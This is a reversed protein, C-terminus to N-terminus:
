RVNVRNKRAERNRAWRFSRLALEKTTSNAGQVSSIFHFLNQAKEGNSSQKGYCGRDHVRSGEDIRGRRFSGFLRRFVDCGPNTMATPMAVMTPSPMAAEMPAPVFMTVVMAMVPPMVAMPTLSGASNLKINIFSM